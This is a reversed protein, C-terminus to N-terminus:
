RSSSARASLHALVRGIPVGTPCLARCGACGQCAALLSRAEPLDAGARGVLRFAAPLGLARVAPTAEALRCGPECLGCGICRAALFSVELDAASTPALRDDAFAARFRDIGAGRQFLRKVPEVLVARWGLYLLAPLNPTV